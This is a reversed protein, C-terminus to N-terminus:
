RLTLAMGACLKRFPEPAGLSVSDNNGTWVQQLHGENEGAQQSPNARGSPVRCARTPGSRPVRCYIGQM